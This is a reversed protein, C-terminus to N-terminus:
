YNVSTKISSDFHHLAQQYHVGGSGASQKARFWCKTPGRLRPSVAPGPASQQHECNIATILKRSGSFGCLAESPILAWNHHAVTLLAEPFYLPSATSAEMSAGVWVKKPLCQAPSPATILPPVPVPPPSVTVLIVKHLGNQLLCYIIISQLALSEFNFFCWCWLLLSNIVRVPLCIDVWTEVYRKGEGSRFAPRLYVIM